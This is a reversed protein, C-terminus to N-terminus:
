KYKSFFERIGAKFAPAEKFKPDLKNIIADLLELFRDKTNIQKFDGTRDSLDKDINKVSPTEDPLNNVETEESTIQIGALEQMRQITKMEQVGTLTRGQYKDQLYDILKQNMDFNDELQKDDPADEISKSIIKLFANEVTDDVIASFKDDVDIKDLWTKTKKDDPKGFAAKVFDFTSKAASMGPILDLAVDIAVNGIQAGKQKLSVAKIAKKLDGYTEM